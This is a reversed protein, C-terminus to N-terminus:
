QLTIGLTASDAPPLTACPATQAPALGQVGHPDPTRARLLHVLYEFGGPFQAARLIASLDPSGEVLRLLRQAPLPPDPRDVSFGSGEPAWTPVGDPRLIFDPSMFNYFIATPDYADGLTAGVARTRMEYRTLDYGLDPYGRDIREQRKDYVVPRLEATKKGFYVSGTDYGHPRSLYRQISSPPIRKRGSRLGDESESKELLRSIAPPTPERVDLTAHLGTVKHPRGAFTALFQGYQNALRLTALSSGSASIVRVFGMRESRVTGGGSSWGRSTDNEYQPGFGSDNLVASLESSIEDWTENSISIRLDDCFVDSM